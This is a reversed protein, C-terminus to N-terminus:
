GKSTPNGGSMSNKSSFYDKNSTTLVGRNLITYYGANKDHVVNYGRIMALQTDADKQAQRGGKHTIDGYRDKKYGLAKMTKPNQRLWRYGEYRIDDTTIIKANKNLVAGFTNSDKATNGYYHRSEHLSDAMYMGGGYARGGGAGTKFVTDARTSDAIQKASLNPNADTLTRYLAVAGPQKAMAEVRAASIIEPKDNWNAAYILRQTPDNRDLNSPLSMATNANLTIFDAVQKDNMGTFDTGGLGGGGGSGGGGGGAGGTRGAGAGM